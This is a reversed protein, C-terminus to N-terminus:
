RKLFTYSRILPIAQAHSSDVKALLAWVTIKLNYRIFNLSIPSLWHKVYHVSLWWGTACTRELNSVLAWVTYPCMCYQINAATWLASSVIDATWPASHSHDSDMTRFDYSNQLAATRWLHTGLSIGKKSQVSDIM